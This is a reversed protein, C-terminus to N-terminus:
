SFGCSCTHTPPFSLLQESPTSIGMLARPLFQCGLDLIMDNRSLKILIPIGVEGRGQRHWGHLKHRDELKDAAPISKCAPLPGRTEWTRDGERWEGDQLVESM